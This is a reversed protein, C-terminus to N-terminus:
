LRGSGAGRSAHRRRWRSVVGAAGRLGRAVGRVVPGRPRSLLVAEALRLLGARPLVAALPLAIFQVARQVSDGDSAGARLSRLGARLLTAVDDGPVPHGPPDVRLSVLRQLVHEPNRLPLDPAVERGHEAAAGALYRQRTLDYGVRQRVGALDVGGSYAWLNRGHLRYSGLERDISVVPGHFPAVLNLYGDNTNRFDDEPIPLIKELVTRRFANGTTVPTVYRGTSILEAVVDGNPMAVAAPPDVAGRRGAGDILSLRFQVKCCDDQWADVVAAAADEHLLDDADLFMVIDGTV